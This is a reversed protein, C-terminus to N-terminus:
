VGGSLRRQQLRRRQEGVRTFWSTRAIETPHRQTRSARGAGVVAAAQWVGAAATQMKMVEGVLLVIDRSYGLMRGIMPM